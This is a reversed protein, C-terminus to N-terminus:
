REKLIIIGNQLGFSGKEAKEWMDNLSCVYARSYEKDNFLGSDTLYNKDKEAIEELPVQDMFRMFADHEIFSRSTEYLCGLSMENRKTNYYYPGAIELKNEDNRVGLYFTYYTSM